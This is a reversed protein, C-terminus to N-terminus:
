GTMMLCGLVGLGISAQCSGTATAVQTGPPGTGASSFPMGNAGHVSAGVVFAPHACTSPCISSRSSGAIFTGGPSFADAPTTTTPLREVFGM